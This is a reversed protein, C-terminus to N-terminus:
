SPATNVNEESRSSAIFINWYGGLCRCSGMEVWGRLAHGTESASAAPSLMDPELGHTGGM